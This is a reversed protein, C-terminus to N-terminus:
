QQQRGCLFQESAPDFEQDFGSTLFYFVSELAHAVYGESMKRPMKRTDDKKM